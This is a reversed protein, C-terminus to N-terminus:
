RRMLGLDDLYQQRSEKREFYSRLRPDLDIRKTLKTGGEERMKRVAKARNRDFRDHCDRVFVCLCALNWSENSTLAPESRPIIHAAPTGYPVRGGCWECRGSARAYTRESLERKNAKWEKAVSVM